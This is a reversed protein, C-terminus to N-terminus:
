DWRVALKHLKHFKREQLTKIFGDSESQAQKLWDFAQIFVFDKQEQVCRKRREGEEKYNDQWQVQFPPFFHGGRDGEDM